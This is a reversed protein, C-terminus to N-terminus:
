HGYIQWKEIDIFYFKKGNSFHEVILPISDGINPIPPVLQLEIGTNNSLLLKGKYITIGGSKGYKTSIGQVSHRKVSKVVGIEYTTDILKLSRKQNIAWLTIILLAIAIFIARWNRYNTALLDTFKSM